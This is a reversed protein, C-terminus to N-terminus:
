RAVRTRVMGLRDANHAVLADLKAASLTDLRSARLEAILKRCRRADMAEQNERMSKLLAAQERRIGAFGEGAPQAKTTTAPQGPRVRAMHDRRSICEAQREAKPDRTNTPVRRVKATSRRRSEQFAQLEAVLLDFQSIYPTHRMTGASDVWTEYSIPASM